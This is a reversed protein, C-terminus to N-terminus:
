RRLRQVGGVLAVTAAGALMGVGAGAAANILPAALSGLTSAYAEVAHGLAPWGHLLIGGGVMFMAATGIVTLAKMLKPAALLLLLLLLRMNPQLPMLQLLFLKHLM